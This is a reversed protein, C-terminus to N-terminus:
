ATQRHQQQKRQEARELREVAWALLRITQQNTSRNRREAIVDLRSRLETPPYITFPKIRRM